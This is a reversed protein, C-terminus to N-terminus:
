SARGSRPPRSDVRMRLRTVREFDTLRDKLEDAFRAAFWIGASAELREQEKLLAWSIQYRDDSSLRLTKM